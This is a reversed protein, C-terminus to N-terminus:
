IHIERPGRLYAEAADMTFAGVYDFGSYINGRPYVVPGRVAGSSPRWHDRLRAWREQLSALEQRAHTLEAEIRKVEADAAAKAANRREILALREEREVACAADYVALEAEAAAVEAARQPLAEELEILYSSRKRPHPGEWALPFKERSRQEEARLQDVGEKTWRWRGQARELDVLWPRRDIRQDRELVSMPQVYFPGARRAIDLAASLNRIRHQLGSIELPVEETPM